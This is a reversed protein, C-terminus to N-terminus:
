SKRGTDIEGLWAPSSPVESYRPSESFTSLVRPGRRDFAAGYSDAVLARERDVGLHVTDGRRGGSTRIAWACPLRREAGSQGGRTREAAACIDRLLEVSLGKSASWTPAALGLDRILRSTPGSSGSSDRRVRTQNFVAFAALGLAVCEITCAEAAPVGLAMISMTVTLVGVLVLALLRRM